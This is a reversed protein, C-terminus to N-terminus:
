IINVEAELQVAFKRFVSSKIAESLRLIDAGSAKGYNVLVLAQQKHVGADGERFGKWGAQEILWGAALKVEQDNLSFGVLDPYHNKLEEYRARAVVPNKFFSGSNGIEAPNPLKSQRIKIVAEAISDIDPAQGDKELQARIAGYDLRLQHEKRSLKFDVRTIIYRGKGRGKFLSDRYGFACAEKTFHCFQQTELDFAELGAFVDKLEVGYAGINQIPATGVQGPILSLNELGGLGQQRAWVTFDHWNEGAAAQVLSYNADLVEKRIGKFAVKVVLGDWDKTLLMNSGGGLWLVPNQQFIPEKCLAPLQERDKLLYFYRTKADIGFTNLDQLSRNEEIHIM